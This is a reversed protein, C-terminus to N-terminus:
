SKENKLLKQVHHLHRIEKYIKYIGVPGSNAYFWPFVGHILSKIAIVVLRLSQKASHVFHTTYSMQSETLHPHKM